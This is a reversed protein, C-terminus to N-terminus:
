VHLPVLCIDFDVKFKIGSYALGSQGEIHELTRGITGEHKKEVLM